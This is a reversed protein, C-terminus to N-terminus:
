CYPTNNCIELPLQPSEGKLYATTDASQRRRREEHGLVLLTNGSALGLDTCREENRYVVVEGLPGSRDDVQNETFRWVDFMRDDGYSWMFVIVYSAARYYTEDKAFITALLQEIAVWDRDGYAVKADKDPYVIVQIGSIVLDKSQFFSHNPQYSFNLRPPLGQDWVQMFLQKQQKAFAQDQIVFLEIEGGVVQYCGVIDDFILMEQQIDYVSAPVFRFTMCTDIFLQNGTFAPITPSNTLQKVKTGSALFVQRIQEAQDPGLLVSLDAQEYIYVEGGAKASRLSITFLDEKTAKQITYERM